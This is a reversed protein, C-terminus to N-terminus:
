IFYPTLIRVPNKQNLLFSEALEQVCPLSNQPEMFGPLKNVIQSVVLKEFFEKNWLFFASLQM